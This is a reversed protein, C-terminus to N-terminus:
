TEKGGRTKRAGHGAPRDEWPCGPKWRKEITMEVRNGRVSVRIDDAINAVISHELEALAEEMAPDEASQADEVDDRYQRLTWTYDDPMVLMAGMGSGMSNMRAFGYCSNEVIDRIKGMIGTSAHNKQSSSVAILDQKKLINMATEAELHLLCGGPIKEPWFEAEFDLTIARVMSLTEEALLRMRLSSRDDLGLEKAFKEAADLAEAMGIGSSTVKIKRPEM